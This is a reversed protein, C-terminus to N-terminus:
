RRCKNIWKSSSKTYELLLVWTHTCPSNNSAALSTLAHPTHLCLAMSDNWLLNPPCLFLSCTRNHGNDLGGYCQSEEHLIVKRMLDMDFRLAMERILISTEERAGALRQSRDGKSTMMLVLCYVMPCYIMDAIIRLSMSGLLSMPSQSVLWVVSRTDYVIYKM